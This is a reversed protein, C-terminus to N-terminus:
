IYANEDERFQKDVKKWVALGGGRGKAICVEDDAYVFVFFPRKKGQRSENPPLDFGFALPGLKFDLRDFDFYLIGQNTVEFDGAFVLSAVGFVFIGNQIRMDHVNWNQVATLPFYSGGDGRVEELGKATGTIVNKKSITYVLKWFNGLKDEEVGSSSSESANFSEDALTELLNEPKKGKIQNMVMLSEFLERSSVKQFVRGSKVVRKIVGLADLTSLSSGEETTASLSFGRRRANASRGFAVSPTRLLSTAAAAGGAGRSYARQNMM